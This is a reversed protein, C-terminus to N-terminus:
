WPVALSGVGCFIYLFNSGFWPCITAIRNICRGQLLHLSTTLAMRLALRKRRPRWASPPSPGCQWNLRWAAAAVRIWHLRSHVQEPSYTYSFNSGFRPYITRNHEKAYEGSHKGKYVGAAIGDPVSLGIYVARTHNSRLIITTPYGQRNCKLHDNKFVFNM